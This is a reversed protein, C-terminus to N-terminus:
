AASEIKLDNRTVYAAMFLVRELQFPQLDNRKLVEPIIAQVARMMYDQTYFNEFRYRKYVHTKADLPMTHNWIMQLTYFLHGTRMENVPVFRGDRTRWAFPAAVEQGKPKRVTIRDTRVLQM